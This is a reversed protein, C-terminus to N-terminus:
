SGAAARGGCALARRRCPHPSLRPLMLRAEPTSLGEASAHICSPPALLFAHRRRASARRWCPHTPPPAWRPARRRCASARRWCAHMPPPGPPPAGGAHQPGAGAHFYLPPGLPTRAEQMSLGQALMAQSRAWPDTDTVSHFAEELAPPSNAFEPQELPRPKWGPPKEQPPAGRLADRLCAARVGVAGTRGLLQAASGRPTVDLRSHARRTRSCEVAAARSARGSMSVLRQVRVEPHTVGAFSPATSPLSLVCGANGMMCHIGQLGAPATEGRAFSRSLGSM